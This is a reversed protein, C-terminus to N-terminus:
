SRGEGGPEAQGLDDLKMRVLARTPATDSLGRLAEQYAQRAAATEGRTALVDGRLESFAPRFAAPVDASAAALAEDLKGQALLVRAKQLRAVPGIEDLAASALVADLHRVAADLDGQDAALRALLLDTLAAYLTRPHSAVLQEGLVAAQRPDGSAALDLLHQYRLSATAAQGHQYDQWARWGLVAALGLGVGLVISKGNEKWWKRLAEVQDRDSDYIEVM